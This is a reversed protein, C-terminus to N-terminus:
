PRPLPAQSLDISDSMAKEADSTTRARAAPNSSAPIGFLREVFAVLSTHSSTVHSVFKPKAFPSVTVCPVRSGYRYPEGNPLKELVPPVVHDSWGGWDDFTVFVIVHDWLPRGDGLRGNAIAQIATNLWQDSAKMSSGFQIPGPHFDKHPPAYVWSVDPLLGNAADTQLMGQARVNAHMRLDAYHKFAFGDGYNAWSKGAAELRIPLGPTQLSIPHTQSPNQDEGEADAGISFAHNPFSNAAVDSFYRDCTAFNDMLRYIVPLQVRGYRQRRAGSPPAQNRRMWHSHDHPPDPVVVDPASALTLDGDTSAVEGGGWAQALPIQAQYDVLRANARSLTDPRIYNQQVYLLRDRELAPIGKRVM